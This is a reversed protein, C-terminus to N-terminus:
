PGCCGCSVFSHLTDQARLYDSDFNTRGMPWLGFHPGCPVIKCTAVHESFVASIAIWRWRIPFEKESAM